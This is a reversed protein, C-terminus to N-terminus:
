RGTAAAYWRQLLGVFRQWLSPEPHSLCVDERLLRARLNSQASPPHAIPKPAPRPAEDEDFLIVSAVAEDFIPPQVPARKPEAPAPPVPASRVPERHSFGPAIDDYDRVLRPREAPRESAPVPPLAEKEIPAPERVAPKQALVPKRPEESLAEPLAGFINARRMQPERPRTLSLMKEPAPADAEELDDACKDDDNFPSLAQTFMDDKDSESLPALGFLSVNARPRQEPVYDDLQEAAGQQFLQHAQALEDPDVVLVPKKKLRRAGMSALSGFADESRLASSSSKPGM